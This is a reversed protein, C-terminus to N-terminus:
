YSKGPQAGYSIPFHEAPVMRTTPVVTLGAFDLHPIILEHESALREALLEENNATIISDPLAELAASFSAAMANLVNEVPVEHFPRFDDTDRM